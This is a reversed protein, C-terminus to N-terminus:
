CEYTINSAFQADPGQMEPRLLLPLSGGESGGPSKSQTGLVLEGIRFVLGFTRLCQSM